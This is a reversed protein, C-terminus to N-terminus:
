SIDRRDAQRGEWNKEKGGGAGPLISCDANQTRLSM